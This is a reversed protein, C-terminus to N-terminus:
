SFSVVSSYIHGYGYYDDVGRGDTWVLLFSSASTFAVSTSDGHWTLAGSPFGNQASVEVPPLVKSTAPLFVTAYEDWYGTSNGAWSVAVAGGTQGVALSPTETMGTKSTTLTVPTSWSSGHQPLWTLQLSRGGDASYAVYVAGDPGLALAPGPFFAESGGRYVASAVTLNVLDTWDLPGQQLPRSLTAYLVDITSNGVGPRSYGYAAVAITGNGFAAVGSVWGYPSSFTNFSPQLITGNPEMTAWYIYTGSDWVVDVAGGASVSFWPNDFGLGVSVVRQSFAFGGSPSPSGVAVVEAAAVGTAQYCVYGVYVESGGPSVAVSPDVCNYSLPDSSNSVQVPPTFSKGGDTSSAFLVQTRYRFSSNSYVEPDPTSFGMWAVYVEGNSGVAMSPGVGQVAGQAAWQYTSGPPPDVLVNTGVNVRQVSSGPYVLYVATVAGVVLM